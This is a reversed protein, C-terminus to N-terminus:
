ASIGDYTMGGKIRLALKVSSGSGTYAVKFGNLAKNSIQIEGVLGTHELVEAEVSYFLNRRTTTLAITAPNDVTSNFPFRQNNTLTVEHLEGATEEDMIDYHLMKHRYFWALIHESLNADQIGVEMNNFNTPNQPTGAQIIEGENPTYTNSGDPNATEFYRNEFETVRAQWRTQKYM